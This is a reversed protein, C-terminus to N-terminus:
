NYNLKEKMLYEVLTPVQFWTKNPTPSPLSDEHGRWVPNPRENMYNCHVSGTKGESLM